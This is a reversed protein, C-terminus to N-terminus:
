NCDAAIVVGRCDPFECLKTTSDHFGSPAPIRNIFNGQFVDRQLCQPINSSALLSASRSLTGISSRWKMTGISSQCGYPSGVSSSSRSIVPRSYGCQVDPANVGHATQDKEDHTESNRSRSAHKLHFNTQFLSRTESGLTKPTLHQFCYSKLSLRDLVVILRTENRTERVKFSLRTHLRVFQSARATSWQWHM